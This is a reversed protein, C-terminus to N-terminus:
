LKYSYKHLYIDIYYNIDDKEEPSLGNFAECDVCGAYKVIGYLEDDEDPLLEKIAQLYEGREVFKQHEEEQKGGQGIQSLYAHMFEHLIVIKLGNESLDRVEQPNYAIHSIEVKTHNGMTIVTFKINMVAVTDQQVFPVNTNDQM